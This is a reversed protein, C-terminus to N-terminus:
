SNFSPPYVRPIRKRRQYTRALEVFIEVDAERDVAIGDYFFNRIPIDDHDASILPYVSESVIGNM